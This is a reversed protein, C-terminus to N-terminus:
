AQKSLAEVEAELEAIQKSLAEKAALEQDLEAKAAEAELRREKHMKILEDRKSNQDAVLKKTEKAEKDKEQIQAGIKKMEAKWEGLKKKQDPLERKLRQNEGSYRSIGLELQTIQGKIKERMPGELDELAKDKEELQGKWVEKSNEFQDTFKDLHEQLKQNEEEMTTGNPDLESKMKSSIDGTSQEFESEKQERWRKNEEIMSERSKDTEKIQKILTSNIHSIRENIGNVKMLEQDVTNQLRSYMWEESAWRAFLEVHEKTKM